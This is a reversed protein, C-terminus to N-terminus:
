DNLRREYAREARSQLLDQFEDELRLTRVMETVIEDDEELDDAASVIKAAFDDDLGLLKAAEEWDDESISEGTKGLYVATIPCAECYGNSTQVLARIGARTVSWKYPYYGLKEFFEEKTM